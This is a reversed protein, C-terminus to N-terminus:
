WDQAVTLPTVPFAKALSILFSRSSLPRVSGCNQSGQLFSFTLFDRLPLTSTREKLGETEEADCCIKDEEEEKKWGGASPGRMQRGVFGLVFVFVFVFLRIPFHFGDQM